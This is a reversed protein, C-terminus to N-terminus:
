RPEFSRVKLSGFVQLNQSVKMLPFGPLPIPHSNIIELTKPNISLAIKTDGVKLYYQDGKMKPLTFAFGVTEMKIDRANGMWKEGFQRIMNVAYVPAKGSLDAYPPQGKKYKVSALKIPVGDIELSRNGMDVHYKEEAKLKLAKFLKTKSITVEFAIFGNKEEKYPPNKKYEASSIKTGDELILPEGIKMPDKIAVKERYRKVKAINHFESGEQHIKTTILSTIKKDKIWDKTPNAKQKAKQKAGKDGKSCGAVAFVTLVIMALYRM